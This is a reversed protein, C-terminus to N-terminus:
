VMFSTGTLFLSFPDNPSLLPFPAEPVVVRSFLVPPVAEFRRLDPDIDAESGLVRPVTTLRKTLVSPGRINYFLPRLTSVSRPSQSLYIVSRFDASDCM